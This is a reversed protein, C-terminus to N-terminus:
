YVIVSVRSDTQPIKIVYKLLFVWRWTSHTTIAGGLIPGLVSAIAFVSSIVAMYRGIKERPVLTPAIVLVMSFIGSGGMGQFARLVIRKLM